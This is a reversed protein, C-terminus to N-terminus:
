HSSVDGGLSISLVGGIIFLIGLVVKSTIISGYLYRSAIATIISSLLIISKVYGVNPATEMALRILYVMALYLIGTVIIIKLDSKNVSRDEDARTKMYNHVMLIIAQTFCMYFTFSDINPKSSIFMKKTTIDIVTTVFAAILATYVWSMSTNREDQFNEVRKVKSSLYVGYVVICMAILKYLPLTSGFAFYVVIATILGHSYFTALSLGPNPANSISQAMLPMAIAQCVGAIVGYINVRFTVGRILNLICIIVASVISYCCTYNPIIVSTAGKKVILSWTSSVMAALVSYIIWKM